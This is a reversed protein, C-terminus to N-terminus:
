ENAQKEKKKIFTSVTIQVRRKCFQGNTFHDNGRFNPVSKLFITPHMTWKSTYITLVMGGGGFLKLKDIGHKENYRYRIPEIM